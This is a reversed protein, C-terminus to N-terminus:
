IIIHTDAEKCHKICRDAKKRDMTMLEEVKGM